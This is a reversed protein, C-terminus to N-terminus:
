LSKEFCISNEMGQYQGYNPIITYGFSKYLQVAEKQRTGTELICRKGGLELAWHELQALINKSIGQGRYDAHVFMRKVEYADDDFSKIAGCAVPVDDKYGVVVHKINDLKNYQDYFALEDGDTVALYADLSKVLAVFDESESDTRYVNIM